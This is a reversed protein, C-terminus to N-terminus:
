EFFDNLSKLSHEFLDFDFLDVEADLTEPELSNEMETTKNVFQDALALTSSQPSISELEVM